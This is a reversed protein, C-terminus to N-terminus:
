VLTLVQRSPGGHGKRNPVPTLECGNPVDKVDYQGKWRRRMEARLEEVSAYGGGNPYDCEGSLFEKYNATLFSQIHLKM